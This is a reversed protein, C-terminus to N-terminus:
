RCEAANMAKWISEKGSAEQMESIGAIYAPLALADIVFKGRASERWEERV